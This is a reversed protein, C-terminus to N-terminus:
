IYCLASWVVRVFASTEYVCNLNPPAFHQSKSGNSTDHVPRCCLWERRRYVPSCELLWSCVICTFIATGRVTATTYAGCTCVGGMTVIKITDITGCLQLDAASHSASYNYLVLDDHITFEYVHQCRCYLTKSAQFPKTGNRVTRAFRCGGVLM